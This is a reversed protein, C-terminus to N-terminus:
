FATTHRNKSVRRISVDKCTYSILGEAIVGAEVADATYLVAPLGLEISFYGGNNGHQDM